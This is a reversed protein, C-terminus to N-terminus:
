HIIDNSLGEMVGERVRVAEGRKYYVMEHGALVARGVALLDGSLSVVLVEDGPRIGPDAALVHRSFLNGGAAIFEAYDRKVYVRLKPYPLMKNLVRGSAVHLNFRYDGARLTLYKVGGLMVHRVKMTSPSVALEVSDPIFEGRVGFQLRAIWRLESLERPEPRRIKLGM